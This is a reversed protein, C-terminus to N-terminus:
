NPSAKSFFQGLVVQYNMGRTPDFLCASMYLHMYLYDSM